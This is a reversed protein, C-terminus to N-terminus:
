LSLSRKYCRVLAWVLAVNALLSLVLLAGVVGVEIISTGSTKVLEMATTPITLIADM